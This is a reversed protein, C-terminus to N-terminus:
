APSAPRGRGAVSAGLTPRSRDADAGPYAIRPHYIGVLAAVLEDRVRALQGLTLEADDFQGDALRAAVLRDVTAEIDERPLTGREMAAARTTAESADALMLVAAEASRPRRGPYRFAAEDIVDDASRRAADHFWGVTMTGHHSGICAIVEPPLRHQEAIEIGELVHRHIIGASTTPDLGDHPNAIGQQNEIFFHPRRVKGIDHYLAAVGGLLPDAGIARCARETLAAVLVSHNYTGLADTELQRLLPHNRDALDLLATVTPVRFLTELFPLAGQVAVATVVGNLAGALLAVGLGQRDDLALVVVIALVPATLGARLTARRLDGRTGIRGVLPAGAVISASVFLALSTAAPDVALVIALAPLVMAIGLGRHVLLSTLMALAAAPVAYAWGSSTARAIGDVLGVVAAFTALLVVLLWLRKPADWVSRAGARLSAAGVVVVLFSISLARVLDRLLDRGGLGMRAIAEAEVAGVLEGQRVVVEGARWVRDIEAVESAARERAETTAEPDIVLTPRLAAVVLPTVIREAAGSPLSRLGLETPLVELPVRELDEATLRARAILQAIAISEREVLDLEEAGLGVLAAVTTADLAPLARALAARREADSPADIGAGSAGDDRELDDGSADAELLRLERVTAFVARVDAVIAAQAAGDVVVTPVVAEAASRRAVRTAEDDVVRLATTAFVTEPAPEGASVTDPGRSGLAAAVATVVAVLTLGAAARALAARPGAGRAAARRTVDAMDTGVGELTRACRGPAGEVESPRVDTGGDRIRGGSAPDAGIM